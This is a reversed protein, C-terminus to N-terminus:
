LEQNTIIETWWIGLINRLCRNVFPQLKQTIKDTVFWTECGYLLVSKVCANFLKIQNNKGRIIWWKKFCKVLGFPFSKGFNWNYRLTDSFFIVLFIVGVFVGYFIWVDSRLKRHLFFKSWYLNRSWENLFFKFKSSFNHSINQFNWISEFSCSFFLKLFITTSRFIGSSLTLTFCLLYFYRLDM